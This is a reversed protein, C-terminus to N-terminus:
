ITLGPNFQNQSPTLGSDKEQGLEILGLQRMKQNYKELIRKEPSDPHFELQKDNFVVRGGSQYTLPDKKIRREQFKKLLFELGDGIKKDLIFEGAKRLFNFLRNPKIKKLNGKQSTPYFFLYNGIWQNAKQFRKYLAPFDIERM